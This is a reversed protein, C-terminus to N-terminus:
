LITMNTTCPFIYTSSIKNYILDLLLAKWESFYGIHMNLKFSIKHVYNYVSTKIEKKINVIDFKPIFRFKSGFKFIAKLEDDDLIDLNGTIVHNHTVDKFPNSNCSCPYEEINEARINKSFQSYNYAMSGLTRSYKFSIKPYTRKDPFAEIINQNHM